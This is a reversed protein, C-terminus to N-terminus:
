ISNDEIWGQLLARMRKSPIYLQIPKDDRICSRWIWQLMESLAFADADIKIGKKAFFKSINPDVFRNVMYALCTCDRYENTARAALQLFSSTFRGNDGYLKSASEKYCTWLQENTKSTTRRRFFTNLNNRLRKMDKDNRDRRNYWTMSLAHRSNGIENLKPDDIIQVLSRYDLPPPADPKDTFEFGNEDNIGCIQYDLGFYDLYAKQYQGDFMYTMMIVEDFAKIIKPDLVKLFNGDQVFLSNSDAMEKYKFFCGTYSQDKWHVFGQDDVSTFFQMILDADNKSVPIHQIVDINEDIILRYGSKRITELAKNDLLYFLAHTAAINKKHHLLTKLNSLKTGADSTPQEFGCSECIREVETLYPTVYIFRKDNKHASMYGAAASTKGRGMRADVVRITNM